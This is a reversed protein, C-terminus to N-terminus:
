IQCDFCESNKQDLINTLLRSTYCAQPHPQIISTSAQEQVLAKNAEIFEYM